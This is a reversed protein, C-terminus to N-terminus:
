SPGALKELLFKGGNRRRAEPPSSLTVDCLAYRRQTDKYGTTEVTGM